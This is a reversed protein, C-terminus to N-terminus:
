TRWILPKQAPLSICMTFVNVFLMLKSVINWVHFSYSEEFINHIGGYLCLIEDLIPYFSISNFDAFTYICLDLFSNHSLSHIPLISSSKCKCNISQMKMQTGPSFQCRQRRLWSFEHLSILSAVFALTSWKTEIKQQPLLKHAKLRSILLSLSLSDRYNICGRKLLQSNKTISYARLRSRNNNTLM